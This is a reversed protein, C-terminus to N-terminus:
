ITGHSLRRILESQIKEESWDSHLTRLYYALQKKASDWMKFAIVLRQQPTKKRLVEVMQEDLVEINRGDIKM